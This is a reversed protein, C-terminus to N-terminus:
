AMGTLHQVLIKIGILILIVGGVQSAPLHFRKGLRIGLYSGVLSLVFSVLGIILIPTVISGFTTMGTCAFSIGVALADISTAVALGLVVHLRTPDFSSAENGKCGEWFMRAGIFALLGFAIWHDIREIYGSFFQMGAWGILPMLAQFLGFLLAMILIPRLRVRKLILGSTVSVAFCDMALAVALLWIEVATM